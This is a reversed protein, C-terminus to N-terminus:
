AHPFVQYMRCPNKQVRNRLLFMVTFLILLLPFTKTKVYQLHTTIQIQCMLDYVTKQLNLHRLSLYRVYFRTNIVSIATM